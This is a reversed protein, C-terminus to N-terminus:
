YSNSNNTHHDTRGNRYSVPNGRDGRVSGPTRTLAGPEQRAYYRRAINRAM